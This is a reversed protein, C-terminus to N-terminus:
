AAEVLQARDAHRLIRSATGYRIKVEHTESRVQMKDESDKRLTCEDQHHRRLFVHGGGWAGGVKRRSVPTLARM